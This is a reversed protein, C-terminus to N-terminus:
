ASCIHLNEILSTLQKNMETRPAELCTEAQTKVEQGAMDLEEYYDKLQPFDTTFYQVIKLVYANVCKAGEGTVYPECHPLGALVTQFLETVKSTLDKVKTVLKNLDAVAESGEYCAYFQNASTTKLTKLKENAPNYCKEPFNKRWLNLDKQVMLLSAQMREVSRKALSENLEKLDEVAHEVKNKLKYEKNNIWTTFKNVFEEAEKEFHLAAECQAAALVLIVCIFLKTYMKM